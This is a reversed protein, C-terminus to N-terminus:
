IRCDRRARNDVNVGGQFVAKDGTIANRECRDSPIRGVRVHFMSLRRSSTPVVGISESNFFCLKWILELCSRAGFTLAKFLVQSKHRVISARWSPVSHFKARALIYDIVNCFYYHMRAVNSEAYFVYTYLYTRFQWDSPSFCISIWPRQPLHTVLSLEDYEFHVWKFIGNM